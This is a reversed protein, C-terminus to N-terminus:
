SSPKCQTWQRWADASPLIANVNVPGMASPPQSCPSSDEPYMFTLFEQVALWGDSKASIGHVTSSFSSDNGTTALLL